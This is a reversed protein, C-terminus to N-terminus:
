RLLKKAKSLPINPEKEVLQMLYGFYKDEIVELLEDLIAAKIQLQKVEEKIEEKKIQITQTTTVM